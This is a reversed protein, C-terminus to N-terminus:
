FYLNTLLFQIGPVNLNHINVSYLTLYCLFLLFLLFFNLFSSFPDLFEMIDLLTEALFFFLIFEFSPGNSFNIPLYKGHTKLYFSGNSHRVTQIFYCGSRSM